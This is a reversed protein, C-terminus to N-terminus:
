LHEAGGNSWFPRQTSSLKSDWTVYAQWLGFMDDCGKVLFFMGAQPLEFLISYQSLNVASECMNLM